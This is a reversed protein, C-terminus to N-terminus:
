YIKRGFSNLNLVNEEKLLSKPETIEEKHKIAMHIIESIDFIPLKHSKSFTKKCLPCSTVL